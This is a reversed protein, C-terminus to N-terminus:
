RAKPIEQILTGNILIQIRNVVCQSMGFCANGNRMWAAATFDSFSSFKQITVGTMLDWVICTQGVDYSLVLRGNGKDSITDVALLSIDETHQLFRREIALTDHHACVVSNGQAYLFMSATAACPEFDRDMSPISFQLMSGAETSHGSGLSQSRDRAMHGSSM